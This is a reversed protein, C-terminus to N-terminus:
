NKKRHDARGRNKQYPSIGSRASESEPQAESQCLVGEAIGSGEKDSNGHRGTNDPAAVGDGGTPQGGPFHQAWYARCRGVCEMRSQRLLGDPNGREASDGRRNRGPRRCHKAHGWCDQGTKRGHSGISRQEGLGSSRGHTGRDVGVFFDGISGIGTKEHQRGKM